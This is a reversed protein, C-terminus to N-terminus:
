TPWGAPLAAFSCTCAICSAENNCNFPNTSCLNVCGKSCTGQWGYTSDWNCDYDCTYTDLSSCVGVSAPIANVQNEQLVAFLFILLFFQM